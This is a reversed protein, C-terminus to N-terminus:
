IDEQLFWLGQRDQQVVWRKNKLQQYEGRIREKWMGTLNKSVGLAPALSHLGCDIFAAVIDNPSCFNMMLGSNCHECEKGRYMSISLVGCDSCFGIKSTYMNFDKKQFAYECVEKTESQADLVLNFLDSALKEADEISLKLRCVQSGDLFYELAVDNFAPNAFVKYEKAVSQAGNIVNNKFALQGVM